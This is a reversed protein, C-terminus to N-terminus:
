IKYDKEQATMEDIQVSLKHKALALAAVASNVDNEVPTGRVHLRLRVLENHQKNVKLFLQSIEQLPTM